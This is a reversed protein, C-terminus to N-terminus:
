TGRGVLMYCTNRIIKFSFIRLCLVTRISDETESQPFLQSSFDTKGSLLLTIKEKGEEYPSSNDKM